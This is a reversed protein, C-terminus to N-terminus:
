LFFYKSKKSPIKVANLYMLITYTFKHFGFLWYMEPIGECARRPNTPPPNNARAKARSVLPPEKDAKAKGPHRRKTFRASLGKLCGDWRCDNTKM